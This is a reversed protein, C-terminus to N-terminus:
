WFGGPNEITPIVFGEPFYEPVRGDMAPKVRCIFMGSITNAGASILNTALMAFNQLMTESALYSLFVLDKNMILAQRVAMQQHEQNFYFIDDQQGVAEYLMEEFKKMRVKEQGTLYASINIIVPQRLISRIEEDQNMAEMFSIGIFSGPLAMKAHFDNNAAQKKENMSHYDPHYFSSYAWWKYNGVMGRVAWNDGSSTSDIEKRSSVPTSAHCAKVYNQYLVENNM